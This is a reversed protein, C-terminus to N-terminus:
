ELIRRGEGREDRRVAQFSIWISAAVSFLCTLSVDLSLGSVCSRGCVRLGRSGRLTGARDFAWTEGFFPWFVPWDSLPASSSERDFAPPTADDTLEQEENGESGIASVPQPPAPRFPAGGTM